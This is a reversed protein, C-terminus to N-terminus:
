TENRGNVEGTTVNAELSIECLYDCIQLPIFQYNANNNHNNAINNANFLM